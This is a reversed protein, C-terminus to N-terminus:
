RVADRDRRDVPTAVWGSGRGDMWVRRGRGDRRRAVIGVRPPRDIGDQGSVAVGEAVEDLTLRGGDDPGTVADQAIEV